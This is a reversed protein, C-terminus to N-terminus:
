KFKYKKILCNIQWTTLKEKFAMVKYLRGSFGCKRQPEGTDSNTGIWTCLSVINSSDPNVENSMVAGCNRQGLIDNSKIQQNREGNLYTVGVINNHFCEEFTMATEQDPRSDPRFGQYNVNIDDQANENVFISTPGVYLNSFDVLITQYNEGTLNSGDSNQIDITQSSQVKHLPIYLEPQYPLITYSGANQFFFLTIPTSIEQNNYTFVEGTYEYYNGKRTIAQQNLRSTQDYLRLRNEVMFPTYNPNLFAFNQPHSVFINKDTYYPTIRPQFGWGYGSYTVSLGDKSVNLEFVENQSLVWDNFNTTYVGLTNDQYTNWVPFFVVYFDTATTLLNGQEDRDYFSYPIALRYVYKNNHYNIWDSKSLNIENYGEHLSEGYLWTDGDNISITANGDWTKNKPKTIWIGLKGYYTILQSFYCEFIIHLYDENVTGVENLGIKTIHWVGTKLEKGEFRVGLDNITTWPNNVWQPNQYTYGNLIAKRNNGSLDNFEVVSNDTPNITGGGEIDFFLKPSPTPYSLSLNFM